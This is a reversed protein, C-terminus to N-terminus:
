FALGNSVIALVVSETARSIELVKSDIPLEIISMNLGDEPESSESELEDPEGIFAIDAWLQAIM